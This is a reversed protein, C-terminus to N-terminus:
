ENLNKFSDNFKDQYNKWINISSKYIEKRAQTDSTTKIPRKNEYFKICKEDWELNISQILNKIENVPNAILDEYVVDIIFDPVLKNWYQMLDSYLNYFFIIDDINYAFNLKKNTFYNRYISLCVDKSNRKCHIIKAKPLISKIFGIWKFNIPLKDTIKESNNSIKKLFSIYDDSIETLIEKNSITVDSINKFKKGILEPLLNIEDGGYVKPHSSIIQEVLTTGSRPMGVIFIASDDKNKIDINKLFKESFTKKIFNFEKIENEKSFYVEKKRNNNGEQFYYFAKNFDKIDNFAKGLAFAIETKKDKDISKEEYMKVMMDLHKNGKEYKTIESLNRHATFFDNKIDIAKLLYKKSEPFKGINKYAIAINYYSAIFKENNKIAKNYCEIGEEYRNLHVLLNGLNNLAESNKSNVKISNKFYNEAELYNKRHFYVSGLNNYILAVDINKPNVQTGREFCDIAEDVKNLDFLILGLINYLFVIKNNERLLKKAYSEAKNLNKSKYLNVLLQIKSKLNEM